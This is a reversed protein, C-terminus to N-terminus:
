SIYVIIEVLKKRGWVMNCNISNVSQRNISLEILKYYKHARRYIMRKYEFGETHRELIKEFTFHFIKIELSICIDNQTFVFFM